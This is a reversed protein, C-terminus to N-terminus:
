DADPLTGGNAAMARLEEDTFTDLWDVLLDGHCRNDPGADIIGNTMPVDDHRCWCALPKGRLEPLIALLHQLSGGPSWIETSYAFLAGKRTIPDKQGWHSAPTGIKYPNAFPSAKLGRRPNARGIYVAGPMNDNVHVVRTTM